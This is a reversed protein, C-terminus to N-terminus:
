VRLIGIGCGQNAGTLIEQFPYKQKVEEWLRHVDFNPGHLHAAVDHFAIMGGPRVLEGYMDFDQKVGEYSHDGDIFLLDLQSSGLLRRIKVATQPAHSDAHVFYGSQGPLLLRPLLFSTVGYWAGSPLDLSILAADPASARSLLFFTGGRATGIELVRRPRLNAVEEVFREVESLVQQPRILGHGFSSSYSVLEHWSCTESRVRRPLAFRTVAHFSLAAARGPYRILKPEPKLAM